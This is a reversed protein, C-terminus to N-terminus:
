EFDEHKQRINEENLKLFLYNTKLDVIDGQVRYINATQKTCSPFVTLSLLVPFNDGKFDTLFGTM